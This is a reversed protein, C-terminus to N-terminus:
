KKFTLNKRLYLQGDLPLNNNAGNIFEENISPLLEMGFNVGLTLNGRFTYAYGFTPRIGWRQIGEMFGYERARKMTNEVMQGNQSSVSSEAIDVLSGFTFSPRVGLNFRHRNLNYGVNFDLEATYLQKYHLDYRYLDSGFGYVKATRSLHMDKFNEVIVNAGGSYTFNRKHMSVGFGLGYSYAYNDSPTILSQSVGFVGQIYPQFTADRRAQPAPPTPTTLLEGDTLNVALETATLPKLQRPLTRAEDHQSPETGLLPKPTREARPLIFPFQRLRMPNCSITTGSITPLVETRREQAPDTTTAPNTGQGVPQGNAQPTGQANNNGAILNSQNSGNLSATGNSNAGNPNNGNTNEGNLSTEPTNEVLQAPTMLSLRLTTTQLDQLPEQHLIIAGVLLTAFFGSLGFWLFDPRRRRNLIALMEDWYSPKYKFALDAASKRYMADVEGDTVEETAVILPLSASFEDWFDTNYSVAISDASKQFLADMEADNLDTLSPKESLSASFEEWYEPSYAFSAKEANQQFLKDINEDTWKM